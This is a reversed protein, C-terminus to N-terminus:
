LNYSDCHLQLVVLITVPSVTHNYTAIFLKTLMEQVMARVDPVGGGMDDESMLEQKKELCVRQLTLADQIYLDGRATVSM